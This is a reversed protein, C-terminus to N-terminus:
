EAGMKEFVLVLEFSIGPVGSESASSVDLIHAATDTFLGSDRLATLTASVNSVNNTTAAFYATGENMRFDTIVTGSPMAADVADLVTNVDLSEYRFQIVDRLVTEMHRASMEIGFSDDGSVTFKELEADLSRSKQRLDMLENRPLLIAVVMLVAVVVAAIGVPLVRKKFTHKKEVTPRLDLESDTHIAAGYADLYASVYESYKGAIKDMRMFNVAPFVPIGLNETLYEILGSYGGGQWEASEMLLVAKIQSGREKYHTYDIVTSIEDSLREGDIKFFHGDENTVRQSVQVGFYRNAYYVGSLFVSLNYPHAATDLVALSGRYDFEGSFAETNWLFDSQMLTERANERIDVREVFYGAETVAEILPNIDSLMIAVVMVNHNTVTDGSESTNTISSVIKFGVSFYSIDDPLFPVIEAAANARMVNLDMDPWTFHRIILHSGGTVVVCKNNLSVGSARKAAKIARTVAGVYQADDPLLGAPLPATGLGVVRGSGNTRVIRVSEECIDISTAVTRRRVM